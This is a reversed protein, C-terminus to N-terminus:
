PENAELEREWRGDRCWLASSHGGPEGWSEVCYGADAPCPDGVAPLPDCLDRPPPSTVAAQADDTPTPSTTARCSLTALVLLLGGVLPRRQRHNFPCLRM